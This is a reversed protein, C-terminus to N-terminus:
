AADQTKEIVQKMGKETLLFDLDCRWNAHEASRPTRGMLFDNGAARDFYDRFWKLAEDANSARKAGGAKKSSLVWDWLKRMAQIRGKPMLKVRPLDPLAEHYAAVIKEIHHTELRSTAPRSLSTGPPEQHNLSPEPSVRTLPKQGQIDGGRAKSTLPSVRTLPTAHTLTELAIRYVNTGRPGANKRVQLEGSAELEGLTRIAQRPSMRCKTALTGVSPYARGDDDSFDAIALMMLRASGSHKSGFWVKAMTHVSM